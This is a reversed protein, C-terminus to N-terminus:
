RRLMELCWRSCRHSDHVYGPPRLRPLGRERTSVRHLIRNTIGFGGVQTDVSEIWEISMCPQNTQVRFSLEHSTEDDDSTWEILIHTSAPELSSPAYTFDVDFREGAGFREPWEEVPPDVASYEDLEIEVGEITVPEDAENELQLEGDVM